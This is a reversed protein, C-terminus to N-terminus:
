TPFWEVGGPLYSGVRIKGSLGQGPTWPGAGAGAFGPPVFGQTLIEEAFM